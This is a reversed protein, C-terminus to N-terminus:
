RRAAASGTFDTRPHCLGGGVYQSVATFDGRVEYGDKLIKLAFVRRNPAGEGLCWWSSDGSSLFGKRM